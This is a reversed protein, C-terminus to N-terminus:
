LGAHGAVQCMSEVVVLLSLSADPTESGTSSSGSPTPVGATPRAKPSPPNEAEMSQTQVAALRWGSAGPLCSSTPPAKPFSRPPNWHISSDRLYLQPESGQPLCARGPRLTSSAPSAGWTLPQSSLGWSCLGPATQPAAAQVHGSRPSNFPLPPASSSPLPDSVAAYRLATSSFPGPPSM